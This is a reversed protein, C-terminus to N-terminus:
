TSGPLSPRIPEAQMSAAYAARAAYLQNVAMVFAPHVNRLEVVQGYQGPLREMVRARPGAIRTIVLRGALGALFSLLGIILLSGAITSTTSDNSRLGLIAAAIWLVFTLVILGIPIWTALTVKRRSARTLPLYGSARLSVAWMLVFIILLGVGTCVLLLLVYAWAPPTAFRFKRWTEAPAGTMACVPPFDNAALQAAWIQVRDQSVLYWDL